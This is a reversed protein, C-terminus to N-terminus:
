ENTLYWRLADAIMQPDKDYAFSARLMGDRDVLYSRTSHDVTYIAQSGSDMRREYYFNYDPQIQSLTADDPAFGIFDPDFNALYPQMLEPTDRVSDVSIFVFTIEQAEDGLLEKVNRYDVLTLPCFDPCHMYGFFIVRWTGDTDSFKSLASVSSPAAFDQVRVPPQEIQGVYIDQQQAILAMETLADTVDAVLEDEAQARPDKDDNTPTTAIATCGQISMSTLMLFLVLLLSLANRFIARKQSMRIQSM